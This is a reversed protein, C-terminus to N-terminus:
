EADACCRFGIYPAGGVRRSSSTCRASEGDKYSSGGNVTGDSTWEAVNGVMDMAGTWSRCQAKSGAAIPPRSGGAPGVLHCADVIYNRGYPYAGGCARRWESKTCLRKKRAACAQRAGAVDVNVQPMSGAGPYEHRDICYVEWDDVKQGDALTVQIKRKVKAMGGSCALKDPDTPVHAVQASATGTDPAESAVDVAQQIGADEAKTADTSAALAAGDEAPGAVDVGTEMAADVGGGVGTAEADGLAAGAASADPAAPEEAGLADAQPLPAEGVDTGAGAALLAGADAASETTDAVAIPAPSGSRLGAVLLAITIVALAVLAVILALPLPRRRSRKSGQRTLPTQLVTAFDPPQPAQVQPRISPRSAPGPINALTPSSVSVTPDGSAAPPPPPSASDFPSDSWSPPLASPAEVWTRSSQADATGERFIDLDDILSPAFGEIITPERLGIAPGDDDDELPLDAASTLPPPVTTPRAPAARLQSSTPGRAPSTEAQISKLFEGLDMTPDSAGSDDPPVRPPAPHGQRRAIGQGPTSALIDNLPAYATTEVPPSGGHGTDTPPPPPLEGSALRSEHVRPGLKLEPQSARDDFVPPAPFSGTELPPPPPLDPDLGAELTEAREDVGPHPPPADDATGIDDAAGARGGPHVLARTGLAVLDAPIADDEVTSEVKVLEDATDVAEGSRPPAAVAVVLSSPPRAAGRAFDRWAPGFAEELARRFAGVSGYRREPDSATAKQWAADVADPVEVGQAVLPQGPEVLGRALVFGLLLGLAYVDSRKDPPGDGEVLEPPSWAIRPRPLGLPTQRGADLWWPAVLWAQEVVVRVLDAHLSGHVAGADHISEVAAMSQVFVRLAAERTTSAERRWATLPAGVRPAAVIYLLGGAIGVDFAPGLHPHALALVRELRERNAAEVDPAAYVPHFVVVEAPRALTLDHAEFTFGFVDAGLQKDLRYRGSWVNGPEPPWLVELSSPPAHDAGDDGDAAIGATRGLAKTRGGTSKGGKATAKQNPKRAM